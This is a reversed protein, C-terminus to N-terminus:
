TTEPVVIDFGDAYLDAPSTMRTPTEPKANANQNSIPCNVSDDGYKKVVNTNNNEATKYIGKPMYIRVTSSGSNNYARLDADVVNQVTANYSYWNSVGIATEYGVITGDIYCGNLNLNYTSTQPGRSMGPNYDPISWGGYSERFRCYNATAYNTGSYVWEGNLPVYTNSTDSPKYPMNFFCSEFTLSNGGNALTKGEVIFNNRRGVFSCNKFKVKNDRMDAQGHTLRFMKAGSLIVNVFDINQITVNIQFETSSGSGGYPKTSRINFIDVPSTVNTRLNRIVHNKTVNGETYSGDVTCPYSISGVINLSSTPGLPVSDNCDIDATLKITRTEGTTDAMRAVLEAWTSVEYTAM